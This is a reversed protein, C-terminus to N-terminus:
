KTISTLIMVIFYTEYHIEPIEATQDAPEM